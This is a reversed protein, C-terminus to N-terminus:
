HSAELFAHERPHFSYAPMSWPRRGTAALRREREEESWGARVEAARAAIEEATPVNDNKFKPNNREFPRRALKYRVRLVDLSSRGVNLARCLEANTIPSYWLRYLDAANFSMRAM